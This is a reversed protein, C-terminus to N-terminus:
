QFLDWLSNTQTAPTYYYNNPNSQYSPNVSQMVSQQAGYWNNSVGAGLMTSMNFFQSSMTNMLSSTQLYNNTMSLSHNYANSSALANQLELGYQAQNFYPSYGQNGGGMMLQQQLLANQQQLAEVTKRLEDMESTESLEQEEVALNEGKYNKLFDTIERYDESDEFKQNDCKDPNDIDDFDSPGKPVFDELFDHRSCYLKLAQAKSFSASLGSLRKLLKAKDTVSHRDVDECGAEVDEKGSLKKIVEATSKLTIKCDLLDSVGQCQFFDKKNKNKAETSLKSLDDNNACDMKKMAELKSVSSIIQNGLDNGPNDKINLWLKYGFKKLHDLDKYSSNLVEQMKALEDKNCNNEIKKFEKYFKNANNKLGQVFGELQKDNSKIKKFDFKSKLADLDDEESLGCVNKINTDGVNGLGLEYTVGTDSEQEIVIDDDIKAIIGALDNAFGDSFITNIPNKCRFDSNIDGDEDIDINQLQYAKKDKICFNQDNNLNTGKVVLDGSSYGTDKDKSGFELTEASGFLRSDLAARVKDLDNIKRGIGAFGGVKLDQEKVFEDLEELKKDSRFFADDMCKNLVEQFSLSGVDELIGAYPAYAGDVKVATPYIRDRCSKPFNHLVLKLGSGDNDSKVVEVKPLNKKFEKNSIVDAVNEDGQYPLDNLIRLYENRYTSQADEEVKKAWDILKDMSVKAYGKTLNGDTCVEEQLEDICKKRYGQSKVYIQGGACNVAPDDFPSSYVESSVSRSSETSGSNAVSPTTTGSSGGSSGTIGSPVRGASTSASARPRGGAGSRERTGAGAGATARTGTSEGAGANGSTETSINSEEDVYTSTGNVNAVRQASGPAPGDMVIYGDENDRLLLYQGKEVRIPGEEIYTAITSGNRQVKVETYRKDEEPGSTPLRKIILKGNDQALQSIKIQSEYPNLASSSQSLVLSANFFILIIAIKKYV